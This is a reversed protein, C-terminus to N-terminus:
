LNPTVVASDWDYGQEKLSTKWVNIQESMSRISTEYSQVISNYQEQTIFGENYDRQANLIQADIRNYELILDATEEVMPLVDERGAQIVQQQRANSIDRSMSNLTRIYDDKSIKWEKFMDRQKSLETEKQIIDSPFITENSELPEEITMEGSPSVIIDTEESDEYLSELEEQLIRNEQTLEEVQYELQEIQSRSEEYQIKWNQNESPVYGYNHVLQSNVFEIGGDVGFYVGDTESSTLSVTKPVELILNNQSHIGDRILEVLLEKSIQLNQSPVEKLIIEAKNGETVIEADFGSFESRYVQLHIQDDPSQRVEVLSMGMTDQNVMRLETIGSPLDQTTYFNATESVTDNYLHIVDKAVMPLSITCGILGAVFCASAAIVAKKM